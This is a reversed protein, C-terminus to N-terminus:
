LGNSDGAGPQELIALERIAQAITKLDKEQITRVDLLVREKELRTIVPPDLARLWREMFQPSLKKPVLCLLRSSLELLPLAGGGVKSNGDTLEISFNGTKLKGVLKLLRGAKKELSSYSQCIMKLTPIEKVAIWEDRYLRLTEELALLTLKDIRLARCLPNRKIADVLDKRGLIIGAQPGGLLKDGSFTVLDAGHALVEHVTPEKILGYESLDVLCGSGLDEMVPIGYQKGLSSLEAMSVEETFGVIQFNSTHVKLLLATEPGIVEEYDRLHTKNTTGVEVMKAGSKRMVDPIRFSGGIEVLQGRSVVVERGKALTELAILVAAANNNVVMAAEASTLEKLIGEVHSYRSGREGQDLDYELNSYGGALPRFKKLVKEPLISRGLNTHIVVGTANIVPRLSPRSILELRRVIRNSLADISLESKEEVDEGKQIRTRLKDLVHNVAKLILDRPYIASAESVTPSLLLRDVAPIKKFLTQKEQAM